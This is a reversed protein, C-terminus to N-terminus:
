LVTNLSTLTTDNLLAHGRVVPVRVTVLALGDQLRVGEALRGVGDDSGRALFTRGRATVNEVM